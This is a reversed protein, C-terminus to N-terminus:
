EYVTAIRLPAEGPALTRNYEVFVRHPEGVLSVVREKGGPSRLIRNIMHWGLTYVLMPRSAANARTLADVDEGPRTRALYDRLRETALDNYTSGLWMLWPSDVPMEPPDATLQENLADIWYRVTVSDEMADRRLGPDLNCLLAVGESVIRRSFGQERREAYSTAEPMSVGSGSLAHHYEHAIVKEMRELGVNELDEFRTDAPRFRFIIGFVDFVVGGFTAFADANGDYIFHVPVPQYDGPPLWEAARAVCKTADIRSITADVWARVADRHRCLEKLNDSVDAPGRAAEYPLALLIDRHTQPKTFKFKFFYLSYGPTSLLAAIAATITENAENIARKEALAATRADGDLADIRVLEREFDPHADMIADIADLLAYLATTKLPSDDQAHVPASVLLITLWLVVVVVTRLNM